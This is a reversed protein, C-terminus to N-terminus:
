GEHNIRDILQRLRGMRQRDFPFVLRPLNELDSNEEGPLPGPHLSFEGDILIDAFEETLQKVMDQAIPRKLRFVMSDGVFRMSHYVRYFNDIEECARDVSDTILYLSLDEASINLRHLLQTRIFEDCAQWYDNGPPGLLVIPVLGSKGTQMLTLSEFVEDLTGFGGPFCVLANTEKVFMLKRTFFYRFTVLKSDGDITLNAGQEFPLRINLGFGMDRGAGKQVAEMIGPGAGTIVMFGRDAIKRGFELALLYELSDELARASGFASVKRIHRYPAFVRFAYRLEKLAKNLVKFDIRAANDRLLNLSSQILESTLDVNERDGFESLLELVLENERETLAM